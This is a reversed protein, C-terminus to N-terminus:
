NNNNGLRLLSINNKLLTLLNVILSFIEAALYIDQLEENIRVLNLPGREPGM